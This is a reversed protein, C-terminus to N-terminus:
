RVGGQWTGDVRGGCLAGNHQFIDTLAVPLPRPIDRVNLSRGVGGCPTAGGLGGAAVSGLYPGGVAADTRLSRAICRPLSRFRIFFGVSVEALTGPADVAYSSCWHAGQSDAVALVQMVSAPGDEIEVTV